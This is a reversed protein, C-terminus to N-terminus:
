IRELRQGSPERQEVTVCLALKGRKRTTTDITTYQFM